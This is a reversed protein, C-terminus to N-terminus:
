QPGASGPPSPLTQSTRVDRCQSSLLLQSCILWRSIISSPTLRTASYALALSQPTLSSLRRRRGSRWLIRGYSEAMSESGREAMVLGAMSRGVAWATHKTAHLALDTARRISRLLRLTVDDGREGRRAHVLAVSSISTSSLYSPNALNM